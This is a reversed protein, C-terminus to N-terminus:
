SKFDFYDIPNSTASNPDKGKRVTFHLHPGTGIGSRGSVAVVQGQKVVDGTKVYIKSLHAYGTVYNLGNVKHLMKLQLGGSNDDVTDVVLVKGDAPCAINAYAVAVDVGNHFQAAKTVPHIRNGFKCSIPGKVPNIFGNNM